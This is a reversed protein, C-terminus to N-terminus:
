KLKPLLQRYAEIKEALSMTAYRPSPSPLCQVNQFGPFLKRFHKEVFRSTCLVRIDPHATIIKKLAKDNWEIVELNQDLNTNAARKAKLIIDAQGIRLSAFLAQKEQTTETNAQYVGNIIKWFQNRPAGYVWKHHLTGSQTQEKGPFSGLILVEMNEPIFPMYPHHETQMFM